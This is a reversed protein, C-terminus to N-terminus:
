LIHGTAKGLAAHPDEGNMARINALSLAMDYRPAVCFWLNRFAKLQADTMPKEAEVKAGLKTLPDFSDLNRM